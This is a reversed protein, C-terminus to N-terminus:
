LTLSKLYKIESDQSENEVYKECIAENVNFGLARMAYFLEKSTLLSFCFDKIRFFQM